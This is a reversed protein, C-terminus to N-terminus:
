ERKSKKAIRLKHNTFEPTERLRLRAFVGIVAVFAGFVFAYRWNFGMFFVISATILAFLIGVQGGFVVIGSAVCRYPTKLIETMYLQAGMMEGLSSIGQLARALMVMATAIIGKEKYEPTFVMILCATAMLFTTLTITFKRGWKDGIWGIFLGGIPRIVFTLCFATAALLQATTPNTQPFFLDNLLTAMHVYLFLDFYELFTGASLIAVAEKQQRTMGVNAM